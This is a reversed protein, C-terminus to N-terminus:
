LGSQRDTRRNTPRDTPRDTGMKNKKHRQPRQGWQVQGLAKTVWISGSGVRVRSLYDHIRGQKQKWKAKEKAVSQVLKTNATTRMAKKRPKTFSSPLHWAEAALLPARSELMKLTVLSSSHSQVIFWHNSTMGLLWTYMTSGIKSVSTVGLPGKILTLHDFKAQRRSTEVHFTCASAILFHRFPGYWSEKDNIM